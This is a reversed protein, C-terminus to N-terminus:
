SKSQIHKILFTYKSMQPNDTGSDVDTPIETLKSKSKNKNKKHYYWWISIWYM